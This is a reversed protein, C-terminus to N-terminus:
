LNLMRIRFLLSCSTSGLRKVFDVDKEKDKIICPLPHLSQKKPDSIVEEPVYEKSEANVKTRKSSNVDAEYTAYNSSIGESASAKRKSM